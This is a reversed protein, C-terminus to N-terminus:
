EGIPEQLEVGHRRAFAYLAFEIARVRSVTDKPTAVVSNLKEWDIHQTEAVETVAQAYEVFRDERHFQHRHKLRFSNGLVSDWIPVKEPLFFHLLKSTGVISNNVAKLVGTQQHADLLAPTCDRDAQMIERMLSKLEQRLAVQGLMTPMWGYDALSGVLLDEDREYDLRSFLNRMARYQECTRLRGDFDYEECASAVKACRSQITATCLVSEATPGSPM